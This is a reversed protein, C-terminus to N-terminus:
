TGPCVSTVDKPGVRYIRNETGKEDAVIAYTFGRHRVLYLYWAEFEISGGSSLSIELTCPDARVASASCGLAIPDEIDDGDVDVNYFHQEASEKEGRQLTDTLAFRSLRGADPWGLSRFEDCITAGDSVAEVIGFSVASSLLVAALVIQKRM